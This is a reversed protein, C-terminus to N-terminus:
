PLLLLTNLLTEQAADAARGGHLIVAETDNGLTNLAIGVVDDGTHLTVPSTAKDRVRRLSEPSTLHLHTVRRDDRLLRM